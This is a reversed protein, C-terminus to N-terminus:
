ADDGQALTQKITATLIDVAKPIADFNFTMDPHHLGPALDCGIALMTAKVNPRKLTYFHFDDGGTTTIPNRKSDPDITQIGEALLATAEENYVAAAMHAGTELDIKIDHYSALHEAIREVQQSLQDMMENTQARLDIAFHAKGPIINTNKGGAHLETMKMSHPIMPDVHTHRMHHIIDSAVEIANVGLHPRAGHTDASKITGKIFKASGHKIAPAFEGSNLEQVPRLHMGFLYDLDDAVGKDVMALAGNGKEEAPQFIFRVTGNLDTEALKQFVGIVTTMHADHGCSHNAQEQGNVEQWLADIDARIGVVPKGSGIEIVAGPMDDFTQIKQPNYSKLQEVIYQTTNYEEWSIEANHHLHTWIEKLTQTM